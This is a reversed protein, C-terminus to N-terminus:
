AKKKLGLEDRLQTNTPNSFPVGNIIITPIVKKGNNLEQVKLVAAEDKSIDIYNYKVGQENLYANARRCDHCWDSGYVDITKEM